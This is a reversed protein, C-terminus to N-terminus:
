EPLPGQSRSAAFIIGMRAKSQTKALGINPEHCRKGGNQWPADKLWVGLRPQFSDQPTSIAEHLKRNSAMTIIITITKVRQV